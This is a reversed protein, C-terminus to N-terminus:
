VSKKMLREAHSNVYINTKNEVFTEWIYYVNTVM